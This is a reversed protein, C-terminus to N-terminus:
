RNWTKCYSAKVPNAMGVSADVNHAGIGMDMSKIHAALPNSLPLQSLLSDDHLVTCSTVLSDVLQDILTDASLKLAKHQWGWAISWEICMHAQDMPWAMSRCEDVVKAETADSVRQQALM